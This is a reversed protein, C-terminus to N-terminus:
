IGVLGVWFGAEVLTEDETMVLMEIECKGLGTSAVPL